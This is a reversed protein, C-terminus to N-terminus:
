IFNVLNLRLIERTFDCSYGIWADNLFKGTQYEKTIGSGGLIEVATQANKIAVDVAFTKAAPAKVTAALQPDTDAAIAADWVMLRAAQTNVMMEALKLAVAQHEIIPRGWSVRQKAYNLAYEYAARALGVHSAALGISVEPLLMLLAGAQGEQGILNEASVRVNDLYIETHHSPKWGIMQTRKGFKLGPTDAPVYFMSMSERMPKDLSTRAMIFYADAIGANTILGSKNGNLVYRDGDSCAFTKMGIQPDPAPCFLDSSAVNPESEAVSFLHPESSSVSSLMRKRQEETGARTLFLSMSATLNFYSCAISVDAVGLEEQVLVLDICKGGMGGYEQPLLLSTFGLDAGKRFVGQCFDWPIINPDNSEDIIKAIPKIESEAFDRATKQLLLQEQTLSFDIM